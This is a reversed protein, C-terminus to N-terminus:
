AASPCDTVGCISIMEVIVSIDSSAATVIARESESVNEPMAGEPTIAKTAAWSM